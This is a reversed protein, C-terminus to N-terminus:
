DASPGLKTMLQRVGIVIPAIICTFIVGMASLLPYMTYNGNETGKQAYMYMYYGYTFDKPSASQGYFSFMNMQNLFYASLTVTVFTIITPWIMPVTVHFFEQVRNCGDLQCAEIISESIGSMTGSYTLVQMGTAILVSFVLIIATRYKSTTDLLNITPKGTLKEILTPIADENIFMFISVLTVISVIQPLFLVIRFFGYGARKHAIYSSCVLAFVVGLTLTAICVMTSNKFSAVLSPETVLKSFVDKYNQFPNELFYYKKTINDFGQFSIIIQNFNVVVYFIIFQLIPLALVSLSFIMKKKKMTMGNGKENVQM